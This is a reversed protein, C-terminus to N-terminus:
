TEWDKKKLVKDLYCKEESTPNQHVSLTRPQLCKPNQKIFAMHTNKQTDVGYLISETLSHQNDWYKLKETNSNPKICWM